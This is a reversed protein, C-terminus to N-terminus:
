CTLDVQNARVDARTVRYIANDYSVLSGQYEGLAKTTDLPITVTLTVTFLAEVAAWVGRDYAQDATEIFPLDIRGSVEATIKEAEAGTPIRWVVPAVTVGSGVISLEAVRSIGTGSALSYPGTFGAPDSSPGIITLAISGPDAGLEVQVSGGAGQWDDTGLLT